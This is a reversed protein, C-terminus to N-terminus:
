FCMYVRKNKFADFTTYFDHSITSLRAINTRQRVLRTYIDYRITTYRVLDYISALSRASSRCVRLFEHVHRLFTTHSEYWIAFSTCTDYLSTCSRLVDHIDHVYRISSTSCIQGFRKHCFEHVNTAIHPSNYSASVRRM